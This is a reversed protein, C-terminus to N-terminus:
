SLFSKEEVLIALGHEINHWKEDLVFFVRKQTECYPQIPRPFSITSNFNRKRFKKWHRKKKGYKTLNTYMLWTCTMDM